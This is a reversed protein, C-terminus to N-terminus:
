ISLRLFEASEGSRSTIPFAFKVRLDHSKPVSDKKRLCPKMCNNKPLAASTSSSRHHYEKKRFSRTGVTSQTSNEHKFEQSTSSRIESYSQQIHSEDPDEEEPSVGNWSMCQFPGRICQYQNKNHKPTPGAGSKSRTLAQQKHAHRHDHNKPSQDQKPPPKNNNNNNNNNNYHERAKLLRHITRNPVIYFVRGPFLVSEPRVVIWPFEFVDPRAVCHRPNRRMVEAATIPERHIEVHRGPHVLKLVGEERTTAKMM